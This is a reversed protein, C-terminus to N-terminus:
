GKEKDDGMVEFYVEELYETAKDLKRSIEIQKYLPVKSKSIKSEIKWLEITISLFLLFIDTKTEEDLLDSLKLEQTQIEFKIM